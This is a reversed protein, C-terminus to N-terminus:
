KGASFSAVQLIEGNWSGKVTITLNTEKKTKKLYDKALNQGKGDFLYFKFSGDQQKVIIGYGSAACGEMMNCTRSHKAPDKIKVVCCQDMFWGTLTVMAPSQANREQFSSVKLIGAAIDMIGKVTITLNDEKPTSELYDKALNQGNEDFKYFKYSGDAFKVIIGYGSAACSEMMNCMRTHKAPDKTKVSCCQDMLWGTLEVTLGQPMDMCHDAMKPASTPDSMGACQDDMAATVIGSNWGIGGLVVLATVLLTILMFGSKKFMKQNAGKQKKNTM